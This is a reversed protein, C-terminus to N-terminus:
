SGLWSQFSHGRQYFSLAKVVPSGHFDWDWSSQRHGYWVAFSIKTGWGPILAFGRVSSTCHRLWQLALSTGGILRQIGSQGVGM